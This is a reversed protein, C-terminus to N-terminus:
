LYGKPARTKVFGILIIQSILSGFVLTLVVEPGVGSGALVSLIVLFTIGLTPIAATLLLYILIWVNLEATYNKIARMHYKNLTEVISKLTGAVSAGSKVSTILQWSTKKLYESKTKVALKELAKTESAGSNINQVVLGFEKSVTGYHSKSVNVLANYLSVGSTVQIMMSKLAFVLNQDISTAINKAMIGPYSAHLYLFLIFFVFGFLSALVLNLGLAEGIVFKDKALFLLSVFIFSLLGYVIASFFAATFYDEVEIDLEAKMLDFKTGYFVNSLLHGVWIFKRNM